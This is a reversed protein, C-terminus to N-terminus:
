PKEELVQFNTITFGSCCDSVRPNLLGFGGDGGWRVGSIFGYEPDFSIESTSTLYKEAYDFFISITYNKCNCLPPYDMHSFGFDLLPNGTEIAVSSPGTKIIVGDKVEVSGGIICVHFFGRIDFKYHTVNQSEWKQRAIPLGVRAQYKEASEILLSLPDFLVEIVLLVALAIWLAKRSRTKTKMITGKGIM